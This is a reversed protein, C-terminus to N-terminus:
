NTARDLLEEDRIRRVLNFCRHCIFIFEYQRTLKKFGIQNFKIDDETMKLIETFEEKTTQGKIWDLYQLLM